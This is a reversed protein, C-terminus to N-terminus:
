TCHTAMLFVSGKLYQLQMKRTQPLVRLNRVQGQASASLIKKKIIYKLRGSLMGGRGKPSALTRLCQTMNSYPM